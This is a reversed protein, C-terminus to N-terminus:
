CGPYLTDKTMEDRTQKVEKKQKFYILHDDGVMQKVEKKRRNEERSQKLVGNAEKKLIRTREKLKGAKYIHRENLGEMHIYFDVSGAFDEPAASKDFSGFVESGDASNEFYYVESMVGKGKKESLAITSSSYLELGNGPNGGSAVISELDTKLSYSSGDDKEKWRRYFFPKKDEENKPRIKKMMIVPEMTGQFFNEHEDLPTISVRTWEPRRLLGPGDYRGSAWKGEYVRGDRFTYVGKGSQLGKSWGGEYSDGNLYTQSGEGHRRGDEWQGVYTSTPDSDILAGRGHKVGKRWQGEYKAGDGWTRTGEGHCKDGEFQGEYKEQRVPFVLIGKGHRQFLKFQGEYYAGAEEELEERSFGFKKRGIDSSGLTTDKLTKMKTALFDANDRMEYMINVNNSGRGLPQSSTVPGMDRERAEGVVNLRPTQGLYGGQMRLWEEEDRERKERVMTKSLTMDMGKAKIAGFVSPRLGKNM